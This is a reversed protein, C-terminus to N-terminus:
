TCNKVLKENWQCVYYQAFSTIFLTKRELFDQEDNGNNIM